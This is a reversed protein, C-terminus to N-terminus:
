KVGEIWNWTPHGHPTALRQVHEFGAQGLWDAALRHSAQHSLFTDEEGVAYTFIFLSGPTLRDYVQHVYSQVLDHPLHQFVTVSYAGDYSTEPLHEGDIVQASWNPPCDVLSQDVATQSVDVGEIQAWPHRRALAHGLRGPGCGLDLVRGAVCHSVHDAVADVDYHPLGWANARLEEGELDAWWQNEDSWREMESM